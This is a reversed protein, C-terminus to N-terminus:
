KKEVGSKDQEPLLVSVAEKGPAFLAAAQKIQEPAVNRLREPLQFYHQYGLGYLEEMACAQALGDNSQLSMEFDALIQESARKWEEERLGSEAIRRIQENMLKTVEDVVEARTGSYFVFMGPELGAQNFAGCYYVLGRKERIEIGMDSSLGSLSKQLISLADLRDDNLDVGPFGILVIAQEKPAFNKVSAPLTPKAAAIENKPAPGQNIKEFYKKAWAKADDMTVDGFISLVVNGTTLHKKYHATLDGQKLTMVTSESGLPNLHYPHGPFLTNRLADQALFMPQEQQQQINALQVTRQKEVEAAPFTSNLLCDSFLDLVKTADSSLGSAQLGFSNRGAFASIGIGSKETEDAIQEASRRATGRTLLDAMLQTIGNNEDNESLLGGRAVACVNIFPLRHDERVLVTVGNDMVFKQVDINQKATVEAAPQNTTEPSLVVLTRGNPTVYKNLVAKLKEPTLTELNQIYYEAYRPNGSYFEGSAYSNAQGSMTQLSSVEGVLVNRKAKEIEEQTFPRTSWSNVEQQIAEVVADEQTPDFTASIGFLGTEKPTYSWADIDFVLQQKEKVEKVLRSSRGQGVIAAIVDLAVADPHSLGVTHYAWQLRSVNYPGTTRAFRPAVQTPEEPLVVPARARRQFGSFTQHLYTEVENPDIDGAIVTIMNDPVYHQHFFKSLRERDMTRFIEELGIVPFRYPHTTFATAWLLKQIVRDPDDYGMAFERLIVEKEREWEDEPLSANMVADSLVDVGVKWNKSPLDAHFVTRDYSTYANIEGGAEDIQKTIDYPGRNTTGKFIMHEMYHSLGGGLNEEEHISGTGVWIQVAVVPASHDEKILCIMGDDLIVRRLAANSKKLTELPTNKVTEAKGMTIGMGISILLAWKYLSYM